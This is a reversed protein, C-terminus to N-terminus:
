VTYGTIPVAQQLVGKLCRIASTTSLVVTRKRITLLKLKGAEYIEDICFGYTTGCKMFGHQLKLM